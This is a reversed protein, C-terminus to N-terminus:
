QFPSWFLGSRRIQHDIKEMLKILITGDVPYIYWYLLHQQFQNVIVRQWHHIKLVIREDWMKWWTTCEISRSTTLFTTQHPPTLENINPRPWRWPRSPLVLFCSSACIVYEFISMLWCKSPLIQTPRIKHNSYKKYKKSKKVHTTGTCDKPCQPVVM